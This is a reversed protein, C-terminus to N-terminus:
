FNLSIDEGKKLKDIISKKEENTTNQNKNIIEEFITKEEESFDDEVIEGLKIKERYNELLDPVIFSNFWLDWDRKKILIKGGSKKQSYKQNFENSKIDQYIKEKSIKYVESIEKVTLYENSSSSLSSKNNIDKELDNIRDIVNDIKNNLTKNESSLTDIKNNIIQLLELIQNDM